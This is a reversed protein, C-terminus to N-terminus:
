LTIIKIKSGDTGDEIDVLDFPEHMKLVKFIENLNIDKLTEIYKLADNDLHKSYKSAIITLKLGINTLLQFVWFPIAPINIKHKSEDIITIKIRSARKKPKNIDPHLNKLLYIAKKADIEKKELMILIKQISDKM